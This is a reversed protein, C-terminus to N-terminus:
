GQKMLSNNSVNLETRRQHPCSWFNPRQALSCCARKRVFEAPVDSNRMATCFCNKKITSVSNGSVDTEQLIIDRRESAQPPSETGAPESTTRGTGIQQNRRLCTLSCFPGEGLGAKCNPYFHCRSSLLVETGVPAKVGSLM